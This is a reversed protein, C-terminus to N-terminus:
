FDREYDEEFVEIKDVDGTEPTTRIESHSFNGGNKIGNSGLCSKM